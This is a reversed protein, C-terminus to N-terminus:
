ETIIDITIGDDPPVQGSMSSRKLIKCDGHYMHELDTIAWILFYYSIRVWILLLCILVGIRRNSEMYQLFPPAHHISFINSGFLIFVTVTTTCLLTLTNEMLILVLSVNLASENKFIMGGFGTLSTAVNVCTYSVVCFKFLTSSANAIQSSSSWWVLIVDLIPCLYLFSSILLLQGYTGRRLSSSSNPILYVEDAAKANYM